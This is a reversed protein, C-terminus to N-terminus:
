RSRLSSVAAEPAAAFPKPGRRDPREFKTALLITTRIDRVDTLEAIEELLVDLDELRPVEVTCFLDYDGDIAACLKLEPFRQLQAIV